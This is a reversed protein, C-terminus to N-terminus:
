YQREPATLSNFNKPMDWTNSLIFQANYKCQTFTYGQDSRGIIEREDDKKVYLRWRFLGEKDKYIEVYVKDKEYIELVASDHKQM